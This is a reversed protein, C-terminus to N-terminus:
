VGFVKTLLAFILSHSNFYFSRNPKAGTERVLLGTLTSIQFFLLCVIGVADKVM